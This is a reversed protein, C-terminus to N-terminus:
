DCLKQTYNTYRFMCTNNEVLSVHKSIISTSIFQLQVQSANQLGLWEVNKTNINLTGHPECKM